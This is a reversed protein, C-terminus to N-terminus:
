ANEEERPRARLVSLPRPVPAHKLHTGSDVATLNELMRLPTFEPRRAGIERSNKKIPFWQLLGFDFGEYCNEFPFLLIYFSFNLSKLCLTLM